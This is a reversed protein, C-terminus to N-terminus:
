KRGGFDPRDGRYIDGTSMFAEIIQNNKDIVDPTLLRPIDALTNGADKLKQVFDYKHYNYSYLYETRQRDDYTNRLEPKMLDHIEDIKAIFNQKSQTLNDDLQAM